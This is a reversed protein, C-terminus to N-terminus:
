MEEDSILELEIKTMNRMEDWSLALANLYHSSCLRYNKFVIELKKLCM